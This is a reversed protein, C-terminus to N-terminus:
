VCAGAVLLALSSWAVGAMALAGAGLAAFSRLTRGGRAARCGRAFMALVVALAAASVGAQVWWELAGGEGHGCRAAAYLYCFTFHAAWVLLPGCARMVIPFLGEHRDM